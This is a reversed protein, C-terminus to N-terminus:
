TGRYKAEVRIAAAIVEERYFEALQKLDGAPANAAGKDSLQQVDDDVLSFIQFDGDKDAHLWKRYVHMQQAGEVVGVEGSIIRRVLARMKQCRERWLTENIVTPPVPVM